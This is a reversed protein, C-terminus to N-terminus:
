DWGFRRGFEDILEAVLQPRERCAAEYKEPFEKRLQCLRGFLMERKVKAAASATHREWFFKEADGLEFLRWDADDWRPPQVGDAIKGEALLKSHRQRLVTLRKNLRRWEKKDEFNEFYPETWVRASREIKRICDGHAYTNERRGDTPAAPGRLVAAIEAGRGYGNRCVNCWGDHDAKHYSGMRRYAGGFESAADERPRTTRRSTGYILCRRNRPV